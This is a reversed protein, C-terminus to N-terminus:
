GAHGHPAVHHSRVHRGPTGSVPATPMESGDRMMDPHHVNSSGFANGAEPSAGWVSPNNDDDKGSGPITCCDAQAMAATSTVAMTTSSVVLLIAAALMSHMRM